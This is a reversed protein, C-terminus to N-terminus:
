YFHPLLCFDFTLNFSIVFAFSTFHEINFAILKQLLLGVDTNVFETLKIAIFCQQRFYNNAKHTDTVFWALWM